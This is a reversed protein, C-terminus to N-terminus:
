RLMTNFLILAFLWVGMGAICVAGVLPTRWPSYGSDRGIKRINRWYAVTESVLTVTGLGCLFLGLDRPGTDRVTLKQSDAAMQSLFKFITFGFGIMSLATRVSAQLSRDGALITRDLALQDSTKKEPTRASIETMPTGGVREEQEIGM